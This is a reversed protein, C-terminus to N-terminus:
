RKGELGDLFANLVREANTGGAGLMKKIKAGASMQHLREMELRIEKPGSLGVIALYIQHLQDQTMDTIRIFGLDPVPQGSAVNRLLEQIADLVDRYFLQEFLDREERSLSAYFRNLKKIGRKVEEPSLLHTVTGYRSFIVGLLLDKRTMKNAEKVIFEGTKEGLTDLIKRAVVHGGLHQGIWKMVGGFWM